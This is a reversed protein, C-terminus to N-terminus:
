SLLVVSFGRSELKEKIYGLNRPRACIFVPTKLQSEIAKELSIIKIGDVFSGTRVEDIVSNIHAKGILSILVANYLGAGFLNVEPNEYNELNQAFKTKITEWNNLHNQYLMHTSKITSSEITLPKPSDIRNYRCLFQVTSGCDVKKIIIIGFYKLYKCFTEELFTFSHDWIHPAFFSNELTIIELSILANQAAISCIEDLLKLTPTRNLIGHAVVVDFKKGDCLSPDFFDRIFSVNSSVLTGSDVSPDIAVCKWAPHEKAFKSTLLGNGCAIEIFNGETPIEGCFSLLSKHILSHKGQRKGSLVIQCDQVEESVDYVDSFYKELRDAPYYNIFIVGCDNCLHQSANFNDSFRGDSMVVDYGLKETENLFLSRSSGCNSCKNNTKYTTM